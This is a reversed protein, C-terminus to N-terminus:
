RAWSCCRWRAGPSTATSRSSSRPSRASSRPSRPGSDRPARPDRLAPDPGDGRAAHHGTGRRLLRRLGRVVPGRRAAGPAPGPARPRRRRPAAHHAAGRRLAGDGRRDALARGRPVDDVLRHAAPHLGGAHGSGVSRRPVDAPRPADVPLAPLDVRGRPLEARRRGNDLRQSAARPHRDGAAHPVHHLDRRRRRRQRDGGAVGAVLYIGLRWGLALSAVIMTVVRRVHGEALPGPGHGVAAKADEVTPPTYRKVSSSM